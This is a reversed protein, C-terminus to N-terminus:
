HQSCIKAINVCVKMRWTSGIDGQGAKPFPSYCSLCAALKHRLYSRNYEQPSRWSGASAVHWRHNFIRSALLNRKEERNRQM